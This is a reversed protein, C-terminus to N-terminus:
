RRKVKKYVKEIVQEEVKEISKNADIIVLDKYYGLDFFFEYANKFKKLFELEERNSLPKNRSLIRQMSTNVSNEFYVTLDPQEILSYLKVIDNINNCEYAKALALYCIKHRDYLVFDLNDINNEIKAYNNTLEKSKGKFTLEMREDNTIRIRLCTRNRIFESNIDTFYEDIERKENIKSFGKKNIVEILKKFDNCYYKQEIEVKKSM